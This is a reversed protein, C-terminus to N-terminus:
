DSEKSAREARTTRRRVVPEPQEVKVEGSVYVYKGDRYHYTCGDKEVLKWNKGDVKAQQGALPGDHLIIHAM